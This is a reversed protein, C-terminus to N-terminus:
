VDQLRMQQSQRCTRMISMGMPLRGARCLTAASPETLDGDGGAIYSDANLILTLSSLVTGVRHWSDCREEKPHFGFRAHEDVSLVNVGSRAVDPVDVHSRVESALKEVIARRVVIVRCVGNGPRRKTASRM